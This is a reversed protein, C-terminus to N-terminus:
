HHHQALTIPHKKPEFGARCGQIVQFFLAAVSWVTDTYLLVQNNTIAPSQTTHLQIHTRQLSETLGRFLLRQSLPDGRLILSCFFLTYLIYMHHVTSYYMQIASYTYLIHVHVYAPFTYFKHHSRYYLFHARTYWMDQGVFHLPFAMNFNGPGKRFYMGNLFNWIEGLPVMIIHELITPTPLTFVIHPCTYTQKYIYM